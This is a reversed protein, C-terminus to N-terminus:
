SSESYFLDLDIRGEYQRNICPLRGSDTTSNYSLKNPITIAAWLKHTSNNQAWYLCTTFPQCICCSMCICMPNGDTVSKYCFAIKAMNYQQFNMKISFSLLFCQQFQPRWYRCMLEIIDVDHQQSTQCIAVFSTTYILAADSLAVELSLFHKLKSMCELFDCFWWPFSRHGKRWESSEIRCGEDM